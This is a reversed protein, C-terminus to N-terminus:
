AVGLRTSPCFTNSQVQRQLSPTIEPVTNSSAPSGATPMSTCASRRANTPPPATRDDGAEREPCGVVAAHWSAEWGPLRCATLAADVIVDNGADTM